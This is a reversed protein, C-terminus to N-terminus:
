ASCYKLYFVFIKYSLNTNFKNKKIQTDVLLVSFSIYSGPLCVRKKSDRIYGLFKVSVLKHSIFRRAPFTSILNRCSNQSTSGLALKALIASWM